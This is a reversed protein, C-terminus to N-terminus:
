GLLKAKVDVIAKQMIDSKNKGLLKDESPFIGEGAKVMLGGDIAGKVAAYLKNDGKLPVQLGFDVICEKDKESSMSKAILLGTLYAAPINKASFKWGLAILQKSTGSKIIVDGEPKYSVIQMTIYKNSKRIVLRNSGSKLLAIRKRYNTKLQRKRRYQITPVNKRM